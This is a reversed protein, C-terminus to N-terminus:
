EETGDESEAAEEFAGMAMDGESSPAAFQRKFEERVEIERLNYGIVLQWIM